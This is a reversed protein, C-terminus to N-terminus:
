QCLLTVRGMGAPTLESMLGRCTGFIVSCEVRNLVTNCATKINSPERDRMDHDFYTASIIDAGRATDLHAPDPFVLQGNGQKLWHAEALLAPREASDWFQDLNYWDSACIEDPAFITCLLLFMQRATAGSTQSAGKVYRSVGKINALATCNACVIIVGALVSKLQKSVTNVVSQVTDFALGADSGVYIIANAFEPKVEAVQETLNKQWEDGGFAACSAFTLTNRLSLLDSRDSDTAGISVLVTMASSVWKDGACQKDLFMFKALYVEIATTRSDTATSRGNPVLSSGM